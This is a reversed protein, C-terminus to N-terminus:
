SSVGPRYSPEGSRGSVMQRDVPEFVEAKDPAALTAGEDGLAVGGGAAFQREVGVAAAKGVHMGAHVAHVGQLFAHAL